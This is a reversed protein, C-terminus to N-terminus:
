YKKVTDPIVKPGVFRREDYGKKFHHETLNVQPYLPLEDEKLAEQTRRSPAKSFPAKLQVWSFSWM